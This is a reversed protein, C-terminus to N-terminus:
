YIHPWRKILSLMEMELPHGELLEVSFREAQIRLQSFTLKQEM